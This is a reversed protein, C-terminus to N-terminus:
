PLYQEEIRTVIGNEIKVWFYTSAVYTSNPEIYLNFFDEFSILENNNFNGDGKWSHTCLRVKIDPSVALNHITSDNSHIYYGNPCEEGELCPSVFLSYTMVLSIYDSSKKINKINGMHLGNIDNGNSRTDISKSNSNQPKNQGM